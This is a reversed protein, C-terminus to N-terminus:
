WVNLRFFQESEKPKPTTSQMDVIHDATPGSSFYANASADTYLPTAVRQNIASPLLPTKSECYAIMEAYKQNLLKYSSYNVVEAQVNDDTHLVPAIAYFRQELAQLRAIEEPTFEIETDDASCQTAGGGGSGGSGGGTGSGGIGGGSGTGGGGGVTGGGVTGSGGIGGGGIVGGGNINSGSTGGTPTFPTNTGFVSTNNQSTGTTGGTTTGDPNETTFESSTENTPTGTVPTQKSGFNFFSKFGSTAGGPQTNTRKSRFYFIGGIVLLLILIILLVKKM